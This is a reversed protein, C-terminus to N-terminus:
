HFKNYKPLRIKFVTSTHERNIDCASRSGYLSKKSKLCYLEVNKFWINPDCNAAIGCVRQEKLLGGVGGNYAADTMKLRELKNNNNIRNYDSKLLILIARIQLDPRQYITDWYMDKLAQKNSDRLEKLKDFRLSGNKNYARTIQGLGAGEERSTKLRSTPSWCRSHTLSICSEQEILSPIYNIDYINKFYINVETKIIDKYSFAKSPIYTNVNVCYVNNTFM